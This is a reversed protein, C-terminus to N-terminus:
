RPVEKGASAGLVVTYWHDPELQLPAPKVITGQRDRWKVSVEVTKADIKGLGFHVEPTRRGCHGNGGDVEKRLIRGDALKVTVLAGAPSSGSVPPRGSLVQLNTETADSPPLVLRVGLYNAPSPSENKWFYTPEWMGAIAFDVRGDGDTDSTAIARSVLPEDFGVEVGVDHYRGDAGFVYFANKDHGSIDMNPKFTPWNRPDPILYSNVSALSQMEPWRNVNGKIFGRAQLLDPLVQNAFSEFKADWGWGGRSVGYKESSQVYPAVGDAFSKGKRSEWLFHSEQLGFEEAVNSVFIEPIGDGNLDAFDCAMGKYKDEGLVFSGPTAFSREGSVVEFKLNGPTSRNWLLRDPGLDNGVYLEPLMDGDLDQAGIALTWGHVVREPLINKVEKFYCPSEPTPKKWLFFHVGGGNCAWGNSNHMEQIRTCDPNYIDSDDPFYNGLVIDLHGDGDLDAQVIASTGWRVDALGEAFDVQEFDAASLTAGAPTAKRLFIVPASGAFHVLIDPRGDENFDGVIAGAPAIYPHTGTGGSVLAFPAYRAGTGPAPAVILQETRNDTYILDNAVGDGDVDALTVGASLASMWQAQRAVSTNTPRIKRTEVKSPPVPLETRTFRYRAALEQREAASTALPDRSLGWLIACCFLGVTFAQRYSHRM